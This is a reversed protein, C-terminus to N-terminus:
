DAWGRGEVRPGRGEAERRVQEREGVVGVLGDGKSGQRVIWIWAGRIVEHGNEAEYIRSAVV